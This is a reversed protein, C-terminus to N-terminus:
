YINPSRMQVCVDTRGNRGDAGDTRGGSFSFCGLSFMLLHLTLVNACMCGDTRGNRGSRGDSTGTGLPTLNSDARGNRGGTGDTGIRPPTLNSNLNVNLNV